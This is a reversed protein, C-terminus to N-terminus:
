GAKRRALFAAMAEGPEGTGYAASFATVGAAVAGRVPLEEWQLVLAKQARMAAPAGALLAGVWAEVAGDLGGESAVREVLGWAAAEAAGFTEGLLVIQRTRGWGVLMPLLAAEVVSPIGLRVEPMAFVANAGAVRLDCAAAIEVGAGICAGNIRAIVPVPLDRIAQCVRHIALIFGRASHRDLGAMERVDAGGVFIREGAGTLVAARLGDDGALGEFVEALRALLGSNMVNARRSNDITVTAVGRASREVSVEGDGVIARRDITGVGAFLSAARVPGMSGRM